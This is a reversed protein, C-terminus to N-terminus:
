WENVSYLLALRIQTLLESSLNKYDSELGKEYAYWSPSDNWSGMGGFVDSIGASGFLRVNKEPMLSFYKKYFYNEIEKGDLMDYAKTFINAFNQFDIKNALTAIRSLTNKFDEINDEFKPKEKPPNEWKYERYIVNWGNDKHEWKPIFYTVLDGQLIGLKLVDEGTKVDEDIRIEMTEETRPMERAVDGYVHVSAKVPLLTGSYTKGSITHIVVNEGEVSGWAFGGVNTVELRGNKKIKKVVAGLTDVHASIMKKYNSDKGKIYAILAGKRTINYNKIGLGKLENKVWEIANHTYGVPSPINILEVTKNLIYKLDINM